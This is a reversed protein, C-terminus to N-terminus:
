SLYGGMGLVFHPQTDKILDIAEKFGIFLNIPFMLAKFSFQRPLGQGPIDRVHFGERQLIDRGLDGSRVVFAIRVAPAASSKRMLAQAVAIGPYLHGGTGGAVILILPAPTEM